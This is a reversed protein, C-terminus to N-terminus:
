TWISFTFTTTQFSLFKFCHAELLLHPSLIDLVGGNELIGRVNCIGTGGDDDEEEEELYIELILM